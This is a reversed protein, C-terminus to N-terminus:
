TVQALATTCIASLAILFLITKKMLYSKNQTSYQITLSVLLVVSRSRTGFNRAPLYVPGGVPQVGVSHPGCLAQRSFQKGRGCGYEGLRRRNPELLGLRRGSNGVSVPAGMGM